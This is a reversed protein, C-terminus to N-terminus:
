KLEKNVNELLKNIVGNVVNDYESELGREMFDNPGNKKSTGTGTAVYYLYYASKKGSINNAIGVALNFNDQAYWKRDRAHDKNRNSRPIFKTISKAILEGAVNHLYDNIASESTKGCQRIADQIREVDEYNLEYRTKIKPM